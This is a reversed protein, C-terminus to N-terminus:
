TAIIQWKQFFRQKIFISVMQNKFKESGYFGSVGIKSNRAVLDNAVDYFMSFLDHKIPLILEKLVEDETSRAQAVLLRILDFGVEDWMRVMDVTENLNSRVM